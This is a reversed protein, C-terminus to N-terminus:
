QLIEKKIREKYFYLMREKIGLEKQIEDDSYSDMLMEYVKLLKGKFSMRLELDLISYDGDPKDDIWDGEILPTKIKRNHDIVINRITNYQVNEKNRINEPLEYLALMIDQYLDEDSKGYNFRRILANIRKENM